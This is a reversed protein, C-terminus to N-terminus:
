QPRADRFIVQAIALLGDQPTPARDLGISIIGLSMEMQGGGERPKAPKIFRTGRDLGAEREVRGEGDGAGPDVPGRHAVVRRM